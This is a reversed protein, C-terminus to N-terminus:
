SVARIKIVVKKVIDSGTIKIGPRHVDAPTFIYFTGSEGVYYKGQAEYFTADMKSNYPETVKAESLPSVGMNAKGKIIYQLDNFNNHTEWKVKDIEPAPGESVTATVNGQDIVYRGPAITNLDNEKLWTFTKDWLAKNGFYEKAFAQQNTSQHPKLQCGGLWESKKYWKSVEKKTMTGAQSQAFCSFGTLIVSVLIMTRFARYLLKKM